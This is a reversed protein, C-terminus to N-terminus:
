TIQIPADHTFPAGIRGQVATVELNPLCTSMLILLDTSTTAATAAAAAAFAASAFASASAAALRLAALSWSM